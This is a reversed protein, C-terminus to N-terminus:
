GGRPAADGAGALRARLRERLNPDPPHEKEIAARIAAAKRDQEEVYADVEGRHSLYYAIVAYADGLSVTPFSQVIQEPSDGQHFRHVIVDLSVRPDGVRVVGGEDVRLPVPATM